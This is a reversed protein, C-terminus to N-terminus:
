LGEDVREQYAERVTTIGSNAWDIREYLYEDARYIGVDYPEKKNDLVIIQSKATPM